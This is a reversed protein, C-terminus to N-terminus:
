RGTYWVSEGVLVKAIQGPFLQAKLPKAIFGDFGKRRTEPIGISPETASAAIIKICDFEHIARIQDFIDYGTLGDRLMLDLVILDIPLSIKLLNPTNTGWRDFTVRAGQSILMMHFVVRNQPEDEVIFIHKGKLLV